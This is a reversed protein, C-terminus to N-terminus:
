DAWTSFILILNLGCPFKLSPPLPPLCSCKLANEEEPERTDGRIDDEPRGVAERGRSGREKGPYGRSIPCHGRNGRLTCTCLDLLLDPAQALQHKSGLLLGGGFMYGWGM